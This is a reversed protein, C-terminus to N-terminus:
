FKQEWESNVRCSSGHVYVYVTLTWLFLLLKLPKEEKTQEVQVLNWILVKVLIRTSRDLLEEFAWLEFKDVRTQRIKRKGIFRTKYIKLLNICNIYSSQNLSQNM